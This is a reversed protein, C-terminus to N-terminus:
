VGSRRALSMAVPQYDITIQSRGAQTGLGADLLVPGRSRTSALATGFFCALAIWGITPRIALLTWSHHVDGPIGTLRLTGFCAIGVAAAAVAAARGRMAWWLLSPLLFLTYYTESMPSVLLAAALALGTEAFVVSRADLASGVVRARLYVGSAVALVAVRAALVVAAGLGFRFGLGVMSDNYPLQAGHLLYPLVVSLYRSADPVTLCGVVLLVAPIAAAVLLGRWQRRVVLLALMPLLVPKLALSLGLAAGGTTWRGRLFQGLAIVQLLILVGNINGNAWTSAVADLAGTGLVAVVTVGDVRGRLQRMLLLAATMVAVVNVVLMAARATPYALAGIPAVLLAASPPYSFLPDRYAGSGTLMQHAARWVHVFDIAPADAAHLVQRVTLAAGVLALLTIWALRLRGHTSGSRM